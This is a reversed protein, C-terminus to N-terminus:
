IVELEIDIFGDVAPSGASLSSLVRYTKGNKPDVVDGRALGVLQDVPASLVPKLMPVTGGSGIEFEQPEERFVADLDYAVGAIPTITVTDGLTVSIVSAMGDFVSAM